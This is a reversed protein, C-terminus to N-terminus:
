CAVEPCADEDNVLRPSGDEMLSLKNRDSLTEGVMNNLIRTRTSVEAVNTGQLPTTKNKNQNQKSSFFKLYKERDEGEKDLQDTFFIGHDCRKIWPAEPM